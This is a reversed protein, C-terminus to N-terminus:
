EQFGGRCEFRSYKKQGIKKLAVKSHTSEMNDLDKQGKLVTIVEIKNMPSSGENVPVVFICLLTNV